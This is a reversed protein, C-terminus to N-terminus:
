SFRMLSQLEPTHEESRTRRRMDLCCSVVAPHRFHSFAYYANRSKTRECALGRAHLVWPDLHNPAGSGSRGREPVCAPTHVHQGVGVATASTMRPHCWVPRMDVCAPM